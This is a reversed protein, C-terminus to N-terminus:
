RCVGPDPDVCGDWGQYDACTRPALKFEEFSYTMQGVLATFKTGM